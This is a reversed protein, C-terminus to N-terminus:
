DVYDDDEDENHPIIAAKHKKPPAIPQKTQIHSPQPHTKLSHNANVPLEPTNTSSSLKILPPALPASTKHTLTKYLHTLGLLLVIGAFGLGGYLMWPRYSERGSIQKAYLEFPDKKSLSTEKFGIANFANNLIVTDVEVLRAYSQLYGRAYVASAITNYNDKELEKICATSLKLAEAVDDITLNKKQRADSLLQGPSPKNSLPLQNSKTKKSKAPSANSIPTHSNTTNNKTSM